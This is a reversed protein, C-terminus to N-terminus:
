AMRKAIFTVRSHSMHLNIDCLATFVDKNEVLVDMVVTKLRALNHADAYLLIDVFNDMTIKTSKVYAAEAELKLNVIVYEDAAEIIEKAHANLEEEAVNGGYVYCLLHRFITPNVDPISVTTIMEDNSTFLSALKPAFAELIFRHAYFTVSSSAAGNGDGTQVDACSVEFRVDPNRFPFHNGRLVLTTAHQDYANSSMKILISATHHNNKRAREIIFAGNSHFLSKKQLSAFLSPISSSFGSEFARHMLPSGKEM